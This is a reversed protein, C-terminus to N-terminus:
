DQEYHTGGNYTQHDEACRRCAGLESINVYWKRLATDGLNMDAKQRFIKVSQKKATKVLPWLLFNVQKKSM